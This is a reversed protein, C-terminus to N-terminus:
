LYIHIGNDSHRKQILYSSKIVLDMKTICIWSLDPFVYEDSEDVVCLFLRGVRDVPRTCDQIVSIPLFTLALARNGKALWVLLTPQM